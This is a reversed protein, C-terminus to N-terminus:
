WEVFIGNVVHLMRIVVLVLEQGKPSRGEGSVM